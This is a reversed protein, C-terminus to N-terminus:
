LLVGVAGALAALAHELGDALLEAEGGQPVLGQVAQQLGDAQVPVLHAGVAPVALFLRKANIGFASHLFASHLIFAAAKPLWCKPNTDHGMIYLHDTDWTLWIRHMQLATGGNQMRCEANQM